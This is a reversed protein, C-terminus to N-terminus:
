AALEFWLCIKQTFTNDVVNGLILVIAITPAFALPALYFLKTLKM